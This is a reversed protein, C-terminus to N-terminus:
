KMHFLFPLVFAVIAAWASYVPLFFAITKEVSTTEQKFKLVRFLQYSVAILNLLILVNSGLVAIRNPSVGFTSLRYVIASIAIGDDIITLAVVWSAIDFAM